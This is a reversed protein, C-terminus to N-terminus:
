RSGGIVFPSSGSTAAQPPKAAPAAPIAPTALRVPPAGQAPLTIVVAPASAASVPPAAVDAIAAPASPAVGATESVSTGAVLRPEMTFEIVFNEKSAGQVKTVAIPSRVNKLLPDASLKQLLSSADVTQGSATIKAKQIDLGFLYADDPLILTLHEMVGMPDVRDQLQVDLLRLRDNVASLEDRKRVQPAVRRLVAEFADAAELARLRLQITPTLAAAIALALATGLLLWDLNRRGAASRFRRSEGYGRIVVPLGGDTLAWVEPITPAAALEPWREQLFNAVHRRSTLALDVQKRGGELDRSTAGWALEDPPFPSNSGVDLLVAEDSHMQSMRPLPLARKLVLDDPLQVAVFKPTKAAADASIQGTGQWVSQGGDAQRLLVSESPAAWARLAASRAGLVAVWAAMRVNM